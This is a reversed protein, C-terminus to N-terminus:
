DDKQEKIEYDKPEIKTNLVEKLEENSKAHAFKLYIENMDNKYAEEDIKIQEKEIVRKRSEAGDNHIKVYEEYTLKEDPYSRLHQKWGYYYPNQERFKKQYAKQYSTYEERHKNRYNLSQKRNREREFEKQDEESWNEGHALRLHTRRIKQKHEDTM